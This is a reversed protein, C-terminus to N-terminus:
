GSRQLPRPSPTLEVNVFLKRSKIVLFYSFTCLFHDVSSAILTYAGLEINLTIQFQLSLILLKLHALFM